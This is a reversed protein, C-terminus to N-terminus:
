LSGISTYSTDGADKETEILLRAGVSVISTSKMARFGDGLVQLHVSAPPTDLSSVLQCFIKNADFKAGGGKEVGLETLGSEKVM